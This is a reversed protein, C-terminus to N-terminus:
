SLLLAGMKKRIKTIWDTSIQYDKELAILMQEYEQIAATRNGMLSLIDAVKESAFLQDRYHNSRYLVTAEKNEEALKLAEDLEGRQILLDCYFDLFEKKRYGDEELCATLTLTAQYAAEAEAPRNVSFLLKAKELLVYGYVLNLQRSEAPSFNKQECASSYIEEAEACYAFGQEACGQASTDRVLKTYTILFQHYCEFTRKQIGTLIHYAQLYWKQANEEDLANYYVAAVRLAQRATAAHFEGYYQLVEEYIRIALTEAESYYGQVWLFTAIEEFALSMWPAPYSFHKLLSFVYPELRRNESYDREWTITGNTTGDMYFGIGRILRSCNTLNPKLSAVIEEAVLPHLSLSETGAIEDSSSQLLLYKKLQEISEASCGTIQRFLDTQIPAPGLVSLFLLTDKEGQRLPFSKLIPKGYDSCDVSSALKIKLPHGQIQRGYEKLHSLTDSSFKASQQLSLLYDAMDTDKMGEIVISELQGTIQSSWIQPNYRTTILFDCPIKLITELHKDQPLNFDDLVILYKEDASLRSLIDLKQRVYNALSKYQERRYHLNSIKLADDNAFTHLLSNTCPLFVVQAYEERYRHLYERALSTKGIGGIGYLVVNGCGKEFLSHIQELESARGVFTEAAPLSCPLIRHVSATDFRKKEANWERLATMYEEESRFGGPTNQYKHRLQIQNYKWDLLMKEYAEM